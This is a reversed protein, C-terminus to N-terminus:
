PQLSTIGHCWFFELALQGSDETGIYDTVAPEHSVIFRCCYLGQLCVLLDHEDEDLLM